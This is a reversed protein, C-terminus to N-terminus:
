WMTYHLLSSSSVEEMACANSRGVRNLEDERRSNGNCWIKGQYENISLDINKESEGCLAFMVVCFWCRVKTCLIAVYHQLSGSLIYHYVIESSQHEEVARGIFLDELSVEVSANACKKIWGCSICHKICHESEASAFQITDQASNRETNSRCCLNSLSSWDVSKSRVRRWDVILTDKVRFKM